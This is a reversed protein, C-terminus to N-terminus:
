MEYSKDLMKYTPSNKYDDTTQEALITTPMCAVVLLLAIAVLLIKKM